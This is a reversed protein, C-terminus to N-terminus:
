LESSSCSVSPTTHNIPASSSFFSNDEQKEKVSKSPICQSEQGSCFRLSLNPLLTPIWSASLSSPICEFWYFTCMWGTNHTLNATTCTNTACQFTLRAETLSESTIRRVKQLGPCIGGSTVIALLLFLTRWDKILLEEITSNCFIILSIIFTVRTLLWNILVYLLILWHIIDVKFILALGIIKSYCVQDISVARRSNM